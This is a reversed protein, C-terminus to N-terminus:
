PRVTLTRMRVDNQTMPNAIAYERTAARTDEISMPSKGWCVITSDSIIMIRKQMLMLPKQRRQENTGKATAM